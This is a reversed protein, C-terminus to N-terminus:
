LQINIKVIGKTNGTEKNQQFFDKFLLGSNGEYINAPFVDARYRLQQAKRPPNLDFFIPYHTDLLEWDIEDDDDWCVDIDGPLEKDTVYSGDIYVVWCNIARLDNVLILFAAYIESRRSNYVFREKFEEFSAEHVGEPLVGENNFVPVM